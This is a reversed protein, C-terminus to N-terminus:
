GTCPDMPELCVAAAGPFGKRRGGDAHPKRLARPFPAPQSPEPGADKLQDPAAEAWRWAPRM